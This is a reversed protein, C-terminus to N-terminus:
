LKLLGRVQGTEINQGSSSGVKQERDLLGKPTM